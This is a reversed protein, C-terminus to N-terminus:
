STRNYTDSVQSLQEHAPIALVFIFTISEPVATSIQEARISPAVPTHHSTVYQARLKEPETFHSSVNKNCEKHTHDNVNTHPELTKYDNNSREVAVVQWGAPRYVVAWGDPFNTEIGTCESQEKGAEEQKCFVERYNCNCLDFIYQFCGTFSVLIFHTNDFFLLQFCKNVIMCM